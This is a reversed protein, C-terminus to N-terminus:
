LFVSKISDQKLLNASYLSIDKDIVKFNKVSQELTKLVERGTCKM